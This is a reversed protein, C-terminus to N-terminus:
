IYSSSAIRCLVHAIVEGTSEPAAKKLQTFHTNKSESLRLTVDSTDQFASNLRVLKLCRTAAVQADWLVKKNPDEPKEKCTCGALM